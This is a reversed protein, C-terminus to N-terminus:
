SHRSYNAGPNLTVYDVGLGNLLYAILDSVYELRGPSM